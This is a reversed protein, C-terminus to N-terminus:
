YYSVTKTAIYQVIDMHFFNQPTVSQLLHKVQAKRVLLVRFFLTREAYASLALCVKLLMYYGSCPSDQLAQSGVLLEDAGAAGRRIEKPMM